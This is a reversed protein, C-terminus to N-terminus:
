LSDTTGNEPRSLSFSLSQEPFYITDGLVMGHLLRGREKVWPYQAAHDNYQDNTMIFQNKNQNALYLLFTDACTGAPVQHFCDPQEKLLKEFPAVEEPRQRELIHKATADFYVDFKKGQRALGDTIALVYRLSIGNREKDWHMINSGDLLYEPADNAEPVVDIFTEETPAQSQPPNSSCSAIIEEAESEYTESVAKGVEAFANRLDGYQPTTIYDGAIQKLVAYDPSDGMAIARCFLTRAACAQRIEEAIGSFDDSSKKGDSLLILQPTVYSRGQRSYEERKASIKEMALSLAAGIPTDGKPRINVNLLVSDRFPTFEELMGLNDGMSVSAIDIESHLFEENQLTRYFTQLSQKLDALGKGWMSHSTDLVLIVPCHPVIQALAFCDTKEAYDNFRYNEYM